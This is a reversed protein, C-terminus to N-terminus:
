FNQWFTTHGGHHAPQVTAAVWWRPGVVAGRPWNSSSQTWGPGPEPEESWRPVQPEGRTVMYVCPKTRVGIWCSRGRGTNGRGGPTWVSLGGSVSNCLCAVTGPMHLAPLFGPRTYGDPSPSHPVLWTVPITVQQGIAALHLCRAGSVVGSVEIINILLHRAVSRIWIM